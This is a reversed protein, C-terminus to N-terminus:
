RNNFIGYFYLNFKNIVIYHSRQQVTKSTNPPKHSIKHKCHALFFCYRLFYCFSFYSIKRTLYFLYLHKNEMDFIKTSFCTGLLVIQM